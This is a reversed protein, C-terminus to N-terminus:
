RAWETSAWRAAFLILIGSVILPGLAASLRDLAHHRGFGERLGTQTAAHSLMADRVPSRIGRGVIPVVAIQWAGSLALLPVAFLNLVYGIVQRGLLAAPETASIALPSAPAM